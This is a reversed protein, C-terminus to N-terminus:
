KTCQAQSPIYLSQGIYIKNSDKIGNHKALCNTTVHHHKAILSLTDGTKIVYDSIEGLLKM